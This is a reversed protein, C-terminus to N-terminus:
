LKVVFYLKILYKINFNKLGSRANFPLIDKFIL